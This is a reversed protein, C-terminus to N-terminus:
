NYNYNCVCLFSELVANFIRSHFQIFTIGKKVNDKKKRERHAQTGAWCINVCASIIYDSRLLGNKGM